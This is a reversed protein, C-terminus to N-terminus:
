GITSSRPPYPDPPSARGHLLSHRKLFAIQALAFTAPSEQPLMAMAPAVCVTGCVALMAAGDGKSPCKQCDGSMSSDMGPMAAMRAMESAMGSAQVASLNLSLTVLVALLLTLLRRASSHIMALGISPDTRPAFLASIRATKRRQQIGRMVKAHFRTSNRLQSYGKEEERGFVDFHAM